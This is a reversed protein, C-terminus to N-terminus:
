HVCYTLLKSLIALLHGVTLNSNRGTLQTRHVLTSCELLQSSFSFFSKLSVITSIMQELLIDSIFPPSFLTFARVSRRLQVSSFQCPRTESSGLLGM